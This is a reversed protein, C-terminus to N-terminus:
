PRIYHYGQSQLEMIRLVGGPVISDQVFADAMLNKKTWKRNIMTNECVAFKINGFSHAKKIKEAVKSNKAFMDLGPGYAVIEIEIGGAGKAKTLNMANNLAINMTRPNDDSVQIVVKDGSSAFVPTGTLGIGVMMLALTTMYFLNKM